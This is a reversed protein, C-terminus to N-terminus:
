LRWFKILYEIYHDVRIPIVSTSNEDFEKIEAVGPLSFLKDDFASYFSSRLYRVSSFFCFFCKVCLSITFIAVTYFHKQSKWSLVLLIIM